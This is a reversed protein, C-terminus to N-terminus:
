RAVGTLISEATLVEDLNTSLEHSWLMHLLAARAAPPPSANVRRLADGFTIGELDMDRLEELASPSVYPRRRYGALFRVNELLIPPPESAIEHRWGRSALASQVWAFTDVVKPDDLKDRPKVNVVIPGKCTMLFYDPIHRRRVGDVKARMLFPQAVIHTVDPDFDALLLRSLELRSEYIVHAAETASWYAGSYHTQGFIMRFTRWPVADDLMAPEAKSMAVCAVDENELRINLQVDDDPAALRCKMKTPM